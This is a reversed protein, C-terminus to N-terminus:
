GDAIAGAEDAPRAPPDPASPSVRTLAHALTPTMLGAEVFLAILLAIGAAIIGIRPLLLASLGLTIVAFEIQAIAVLRGDHRLRALSLGVLTLAEPFTGIILIRLLWTGHREYEPGFLSLIQAAFVFIVLVAPTLIGLIAAIANRTHERLESEGLATEVSLSTSMNAAVLVVGLMITWPVYFYGAASAGVENAALVPLLLTAVFASLSGVYNGGILKRMEVSTWAPEAPPTSKARRPLFRTFIALNVPFILFMGPVIWALFIGASHAVNAFVVVLVLKAVAFVANEVPVWRTEHLGTMVSDQLTFITWTVTAAAFLVFWGADARLFRLPPSWLHSTWAALLGLALTLAGTGLYTSVIFRRTRAGAVPLYRAFISAMGLQGIGSILMMASVAAVALGVIRTSYLHAAIAWFPFGLVSGVGSSLILFYANRFLPLSLHDRLRRWGKPDRGGTM